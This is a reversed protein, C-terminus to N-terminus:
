SRTDLELYSDLVDGVLQEPSRGSGASARELAVTQEVSLTVRLRRDREPPAGRDGFKALAITVLTGLVDLIALVGLLRWVDDAGVGGLIMGAVLAAVVVAVGITPWLVAGLRGEGALALLLSIQALTVALVVGVGFSKLLGDSPGDNWDSWVLLLATITPLLVVVGGTAGVPAWRTGATALYCLV